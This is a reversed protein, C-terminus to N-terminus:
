GAPEYSKRVEMYRKAFKKSIVGRVILVLTLRVPEATLAAIEEACADLFLDTLEGIHVGFRLVVNMRLTVEERAHGTATVLLPSEEERGAADEEFVKGKKNSLFLKGAFVPRAAAKKVCTEYVRDAILIRGGSYEGFVAM